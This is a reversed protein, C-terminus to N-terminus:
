SLMREVPGEHGAPGDERSARSGIPLVLEVRWHDGTPGTPGASLSGGLQHARATMGSLGSGASTARHALDSRPNSITLRAQRHGVWLRAVVPAGPAHKAVNSLSEQVVRYLGLGSASSMRGLDGECSWDVHVGAAAVDAVLAELDGAGPLPHLGNSQETALVSVTRRIDAMAHRGVREADTLADVADAVDADDAVAGSLSRRAATVHLLTVSLSHAVVDHIERALRQREALTAVVREDERAAREAALARMQWRLMAGVVLGFSIADVYLLSLGLSYTGFLLVVGAGVLASVVGRRFGDTAATCGAHFVLVLPAVDLVDGRPAPVTLLWAAALGALVAQVWWPVWARFAFDHVCPLAILVAALAVWQPPVFADRQWVAVAAFGVHGVASFVAVWWPYMLGHRAGKAEIRQRFALALAGASAYM